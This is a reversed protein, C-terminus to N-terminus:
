TRATVNRSSIRFRQFGSIKFGKDTLGDVPTLV